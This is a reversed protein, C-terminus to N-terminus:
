KKGLSLIKKKDEDHAMHDSVDVSIDGNLFTQCSLREKTLHFVNGLLSKEKFEAPVLNEGGEVVKVICECCSAKGGCTSKVDIGAQKLCTM